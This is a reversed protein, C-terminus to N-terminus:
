PWQRGEEQRQPEDAGSGARPAATPEQASRPAEGASHEAAAAAPAEEAKQARKSAKRPRGPAKKAADGRRRKALGVPVLVDELVSREADTPNAHIGAKFRRRIVSGDPATTVAEVPEAVEYADAM